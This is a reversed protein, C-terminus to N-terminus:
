ERIEREYERCINIYMDIYGEGLVYLMCCIYTNSQM